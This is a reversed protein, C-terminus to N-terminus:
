GPYNMAPDEITIRYNRTDASVRTFREVIHMTETPEKWTDVWWYNTKDLPITNVVLAPALLTPRRRRTGM